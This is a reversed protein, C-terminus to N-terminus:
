RMNEFMNKVLYWDLYTTVLKDIYMAKEEDTKNAYLLNNKVKEYTYGDISKERYAHIYKETGGNPGDLVIKFYMEVQNDSYIFITSYGKDDIREIRIDYNTIEFYIKEDGFSIEGNKYFKIFHGKEDM